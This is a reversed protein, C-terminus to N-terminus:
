KHIYCTSIIINIYLVLYAHVQISTLSTYQYALVFCYNGEVDLIALLGYKWWHNQLTKDFDDQFAALYPTFTIGLLLYMLFVQTSPTNIAYNHELLQSFVGSGSLLLALLQGVALTLLFRCTNVIICM